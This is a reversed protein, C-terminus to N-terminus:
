SAFWGALFSIGALSSRLLGLRFLLLQRDLLLGPRFLLLQRGLLGPRFLLLSLLM